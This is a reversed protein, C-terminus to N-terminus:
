DRCKSSRISFSDDRHAPDDAAFSRFANPGPRRRHGVRSMHSWRSDTRMPTMRLCIIVDATLTSFLGEREIGKGRSGDQEAFGAAWFLFGEVELGAVRNEEPLPGAGAVDEADAFSGVSRRV